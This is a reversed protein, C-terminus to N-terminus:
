YDKGSDFCIDIQWAIDGESRWVPVALEPNSDRLM